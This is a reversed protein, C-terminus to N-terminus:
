SQHPRPFREPWWVAWPGYKFNPQGPLMGITNFGVLLSGFFSLVCLMVYLLLMKGLLSAVALLTGETVYVFLLSGAVWAAGLVGKHVRVM